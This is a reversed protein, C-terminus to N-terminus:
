IIQLSQLTTQFWINTTNWLQEAHETILTMTNRADHDSIYKKM